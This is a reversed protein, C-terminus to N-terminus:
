CNFSIIPEILKPVHEVCLSCTMIDTKYQSVSQDFHLSYNVTSHESMLSVNTDDRWVGLRLSPVFPTTCFTSLLCPMATTVKFDLSAVLVQM